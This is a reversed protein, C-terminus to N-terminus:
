ESSDNNPTNNEDMLEVDEQLTTNQNQLSSLKNASDDVVNEGM